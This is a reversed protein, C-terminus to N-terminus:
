HHNHQSSPSASSERYRCQSASSLLCVGRAAMAPTSGLAMGGCGPGCGLGIAQRQQSLRPPNSPYGRYLHATPRHYPYVATPSHYPYVATPSHYPYTTTSNHYSQHTNPLYLAAQRLNMPWSPSNPYSPSTSPGVVTSYYTAGQGM